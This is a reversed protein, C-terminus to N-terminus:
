EGGEKVGCDALFKRTMWIVSEHNRLIAPVRGANKDAAQIPTSLCFFKGQLTRVADVVPMYDGDQSAIVITAHSGTAVAQVADAAIKVDVGKEVRVEAPTPKGCHPCQIVPAFRTQCYLCKIERARTVLRGTWVTGGSARIADFLAQQDSYGRDQFKLGGVYYRLDIESYTGPLRKQVAQALLRWDLTTLPLGYRTRLMHYFNAGDIQLLAKM